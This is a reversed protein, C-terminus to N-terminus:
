KKNIFIDGKIVCQEARVSDLSLDCCDSKLRYGGDDWVVAVKYAALELLDGEYILHGNKDKLGTCQQVIFRDNLLYSTFFSNNQICYNFRKSEKDYARFRFRDVINGFCLM